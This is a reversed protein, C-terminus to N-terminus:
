RLVVSHVILAGAVFIAVLVSGMTGVLRGISFGSSTSLGWAHLVRSVLLAAGCAHIYWAPMNLLALALIGVMLPPVDEVANLQIRTARGFEPHSLDGSPVKHKRRQGGVYLKLGVMLLILLATWFAAAQVSNISMFSDM